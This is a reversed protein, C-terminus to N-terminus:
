SRVLILWLRGVRKGGRFPQMALEAYLRFIESRMQVRMKADLNSLPNTSSSVKPNRVIAVLAVRQRQGGSLAQPKRELMKELGLAKATPGITETIFDNNKKAIRLGFARNEFITMNPYHAYNQFVM